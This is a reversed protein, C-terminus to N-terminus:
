GFGGGGLALVGVFLGLQSAGILILNRWSLPRPIEPLALNGQYGRALLALYSLHSHQQAKAFLNVALTALSRRSAAATAYGQRATQSLYITQATEWLVFTSRYVILMLELLTAPVRLCRLVALIEALPTTLSLFYLCSVAALSRCGLALAQRAEAAGLSLYLGGLRLCVLANEPQAGVRLAVTLVAPILFSFPLILLRGYFRAPIRAGAVTILAMFGLVELAALPSPGFLAMTLSTGALWLKEAPHLHQLRNHHAYFDIMLM